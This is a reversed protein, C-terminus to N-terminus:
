GREGEPPEEEGPLNTKNTYVSCRLDSKAFGGKMLRSIQEFVGKVTFHHAYLERVRMRMETVRAVSVENMYGVTENLRNWKVVIGFGSWNISDYYPVWIIDNYVYVPLMGRMLIESLRYSNRGYGRPALVFKGKNFVYEWDGDSGWYHRVNLERLKRKLIKRIWHTVDGGMFVVDYSYTNPIPYDNPNV